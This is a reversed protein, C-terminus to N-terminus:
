PLPQNAEAALWGSIGNWEVTLIECLKMRDEVLTAARWAHHIGTVSYTAGIEEGLRRLYKRTEETSCKPDGMAACVHDIYADLTWITPNKKGGFLFGFLGM